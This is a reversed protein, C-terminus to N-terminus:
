SPMYAMENMSKTRWLHENLISSVGQIARCFGQRRQQVLHRSPSFVFKSTDTCDNIPARLQFTCLLKCLHVDSEFQSKLPVFQSSGSPTVIIKHPDPLFISLDLISPAAIFGRCECVLCLAMIITCDPCVIPLM